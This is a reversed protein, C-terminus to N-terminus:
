SKEKNEKNHLYNEVIEKLQKCFKKITTFNIQEEFDDLSIGELALIKEYELPISEYIGSWLVNSLGYKKDLQFALKKEGIYDGIRNLVYVTRKVIDITQSFVDKSESTLLEDLFCYYTGDEFDERVFKIKKQCLYDLLDDLENESLGLPYEIVIFDHGTYKDYGVEIKEEPLFKSEINISVTTPGISYDIMVTLTLMKSKNEVLLEAIVESLKKMDNDNLQLIYEEITDQKEWKPLDLEEIAEQMIEKFEDEIDENSFHKLLKKYTEDVTRRIYPDDFLDDAVDYAINIIVSELLDQLIQKENITIKKGKIVIKEQNLNNIIMKRISLYPNIPNTSLSPIIDLFKRGIEKEIIKELHNVLNEFFYFNKELDKERKLSYDYELKALRIYPYLIDWQEEPIHKEILEVPDYYNRIAEYLFTNFETSLDLIKINELLGNIGIFGWDFYMYMNKIKEKLQKKIQKKIDHKQKELPILPNIRIEIM